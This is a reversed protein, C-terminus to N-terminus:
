TTVSPVSLAVLVSVSVTVGTLSKGSVSLSEAVATGPKVTLLDVPTAAVPLTRTPTVSTSLLGIETVCYERVILPDSTVFFAPSDTSMGFVRGFEVPLLPVRVM